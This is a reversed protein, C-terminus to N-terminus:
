APAHAAAWAPFSGDGCGLDLLVYRFRARLAELAGPAWPETARGTVIEM